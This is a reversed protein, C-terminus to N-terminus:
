ELIVKTQKYKPTWSYPPNSGPVAVRGVWEDSIFLRCYRGVFLLLLRCLAQAPWSIGGVEFWNYRWKWSPGAHRWSVLIIYLCVSRCLTRFSVLDIGWLICDDLGPVQHSSEAPCRVACFSTWSIIDLYKAFKFILRLDCAQRCFGVQIPMCFMICSATDVMWWTGHKEKWNERSSPPLVLYTALQLM